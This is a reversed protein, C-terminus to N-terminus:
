YFGIKEFPIRKFGGPFSKKDFDIKIKGNEDSFFNCTDVSVNNSLCIITDSLNNKLELWVGGCNVNNKICNNEPLEPNDNLLNRLRPYATSYPPNAADVINYRKFLINEGDPKFYYNAWGIGRADVHVAPKGDIFINNEVVNDRGGGILVCHGAKYFINAYVTTGSSFDDLYVGMVGNFANNTNVGHLHHIYNYRIVHGRQTWDRGTYLAGADATENCVDHIDNYEMLHNNGLFFIATHPMDFIENHRVNNGVGYMYIGARYTRVWQAAKRIQTNEVYNNGPVLTKRNGGGLIVGGEGCNYITCNSIGNHTGANNDYLTNRYFKSVIGAEGISVATAGLNRFICNNVKNNTGGRIKIGLGNSYEFVLDKVTVNNCSDIIMLPTTLLSLYIEASGTDYPPLFYLLGKEYDFYWESVSDLEEIINYAYYRRNERYPYPSQPDAIEIEGKLTDINKVKLHADAWDWKWYGHVWINNSNKWLAPRKGTYKFGKGALDDPIKGTRAWGRNPWRAITMPKGDFYLMIGSPRVPFGFGRVSIGPFDKIGSNEANIVEVGSAANVPIKLRKATQEDVPKFSTLRKGGTIYAKEGNYASVTLGNVAKIEVTSTLDYYGQRLYIVPNGSHRSKIIEVAKNITAVPQQKSGSNSDNGGPSVYVVNGSCGGFLVPFGIICILKILKYLINNVKLNMTRHNPKLM